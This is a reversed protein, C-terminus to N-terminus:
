YLVLNKDGEDLNVSTTWFSPNILASVNRTKLGKGSGFIFNMLERTSEQTLM